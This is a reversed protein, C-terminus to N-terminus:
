RDQRHKTALARHLEEIVRSPPLPRHVTTLHPSGTPTSLQGRLSPDASKMSSAQFLAAQGPTHSSAALVYTKLLQSWPNQQSQLGHASLVSGQVELLCGWSIGLHQVPIGAGLALPWPADRDLEAGDTPCVRNPALGQLRWCWCGGRLASPKSFGGAQKEAIFEAEQLQKKNKPFGSSDTCGGKLRSSCWPGSQGGWLM